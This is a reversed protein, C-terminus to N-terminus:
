MDKASELRDEPLWIHPGQSATNAQREGKKGGYLTVSKKKKAKTM